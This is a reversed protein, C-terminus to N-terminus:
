HTQIAQVVDWRINPSGKRLYMHYNRQLTVERYDRSLYPQAEIPIMWLEIVVDPQLQGISYAYNWKLHGPYFYTFQDMGSQTRMDGHAINLDNKGLLDIAVRNAFYPLTGASVVAVTARVDTIQQMLLAQKLQRQNEAVHMPPTLLLWEGWSEAGRTANVNLLSVLVVVGSLGHIPKTLQPFISLARLRMRDLGYAFLIFFAPMIICIYRNSGGWWEWADGGVYISYIIQAAILSVLLANATNRRIALVIFPVSFLVWNIKLIFDLAVYAGRSIRLLLPYGVMKLYYTNPLIYYYYRFRFATQALITLFIFFLGLVYTKRHNKQALLLVGIIVTAPVILDLRITPLLALLLLLSYSFQDSRLSKLALFVSSSLLLTALSVEMGQLSWNNLPLYFAIFTTACLAVFTSNDSILDAIKKCVFLNVLLIGVALIQIILSVHPASVPLLHALAMVMVWLPNTFGEVHEGGPNWLLGQGEALNKAYRMSVMADDFLTFYRTGSMVFSTNYIFVAAYLCFLAAILGMGVTTIRPKAMTLTDRFM